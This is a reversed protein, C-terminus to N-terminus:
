QSVCECCMVCCRVLIQKSALSGRYLNANRLFVADCRLGHLDRLAARNAREARRWKFQKHTDSAACSELFSNRITYGSIFLSHSNRTTHTNRTHSPLPHHWRPSVPWVLCWATQIIIILNLFSPFRMSSFIFFNRTDHIGHYHYGRSKSVM